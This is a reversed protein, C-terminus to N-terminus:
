GDLEDSLQQTMENMINGLIESQKTIHEGKLDREIKIPEGVQIKLRCFPKPIMFGDWSNLVWKSSADVAQSAPTKSMLAVPLQSRMVGNSPYSLTISFM